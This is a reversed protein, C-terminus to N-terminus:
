LSHNLFIITVAVVAGIVGVLVAGASVDKANRVVISYKPHVIDALLEFATNLMELALILAMALIGILLAGTPINFFIMIFVIVTGIVVHIRINRERAIAYMLGRLAFSFAEFFSRSRHWAKM